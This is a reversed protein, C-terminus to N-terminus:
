WKPNTFATQPERSDPVLHPTEKWISILQWYDRRADGGHAGRGAQSGQRRHISHQSELFAVRSQVVRGVRQRAHSKDRGGSTGRRAQCSIYGTKSAAGMEYRTYGCFLEDGADGSLSVTVHRRALEAVLFTPIQSSDGFPEDYISALRPIVAMADQATVYM